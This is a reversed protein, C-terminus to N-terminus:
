AFLKELFFLGLGVHFIRFFGVVEALHDVLKDRLKKHLTWWINRDVNFRKRDRLNDLLKLWLLLFYLIVRENLDLQHSGWLVVLLFHVWAGAESHFCFVTIFVKHRAQNLLVLGGQLLLTEGLRPRLCLILSRRPGLFVVIQAYILRFFFKQSHFWCRVLAVVDYAFSIEVMLVGTFQFFYHKLEQVFAVVVDWVLTTWAAISTFDVVQHIRVARWSFYAFYHM